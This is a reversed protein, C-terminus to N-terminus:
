LFGNIHNKIKFEGWSFLTNANESTRVIVEEIGIQKIEAIKECVFRVNAPENRKGRHPQPSLYPADTEVLLHTLDIERIKNQLDKSNPFTVPGSIGLFFNHTLAWESIIESGSFSHFVGPRKTLDSKTEVLDSYWSDLIEIIISDADRNHICIPKGTKKAIKLMKILVHIQDNSSAKDRYFDLGIEGIAAVNSHNALSEISDLDSDEVGTSHNPHIGVAAYIFEPYQDSLRISSQSTELDIGPVLIKRIGAAHADKIVTNLDNEFDHMYLHCHTDSLIPM